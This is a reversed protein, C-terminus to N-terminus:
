SVREISLIEYTYNSQARKTYACSAAEPFSLAKFLIINERGDKAALTIRYNKLYDAVSTM